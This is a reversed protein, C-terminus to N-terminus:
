VLFSWDISFIGFDSLGAGSFLPNIKPAYYAMIKNPTANEFSINPCFPRKITEMRLPRVSTSAMVKDRAFL